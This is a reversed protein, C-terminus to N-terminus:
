DALLPPQADFWKRANVLHIDKRDGDLGVGVSLLGWRAFLDGQLHKHQMQLRADLDFRDNHAKIADLALREGDWRLRGEADAEGEDLLKQVWHPLEKKQAFLALLVSLDRMRLSAHGDVKM